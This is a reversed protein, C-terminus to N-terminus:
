LTNTLWDPFGNPQLKAGILLPFRLSRTEITETFGDTTLCKYVESQGHICDKGLVEHFPPDTEAGSTFLRFNSSVATNLRQMMELSGGKDPHYSLALQRYRERLANLNIPYTLGFFQFSDQLTDPM